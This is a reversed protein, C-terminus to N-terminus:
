INLKLDLCLKTGTGYVIYNKKHIYIICGSIGGLWQNFYKRQINLLPM